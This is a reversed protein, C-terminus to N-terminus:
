IKRISNSLDYWEICQLKGIHFVWPCLLALLPAETLDTSVQCARGCGRDYLGGMPMIISPPCSISWARTCPVIEKDEGRTSQRGPSYFGYNLKNRSTHVSPGGKAEPARQRVNWTSAPFSLSPVVVIPDNRGRWTCRHHIILFSHHSPSYSRSCPTQSTQFHSKRWGQAHNSPSSQVALVNSWTATSYVVYTLLLSYQVGPLYRQSLM